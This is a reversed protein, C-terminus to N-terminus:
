AHHLVDDLIPNPFRRKLTIAYFIEELGPLKAVEVLVGSDLEDKVVIPPVVALGAHERAVLRLMAM